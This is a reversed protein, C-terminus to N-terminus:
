SIRVERGKREPQPQAKAVNLRLVGDAFSATIREADTGEPLQFARSFAAASFEQRTYGKREDRQEEQQEGNITLIGNDVSVKLADKKFGPVALELVFEKEVEQINVAPLEMPKFARLAPFRESLWGGPFPLADDDFFRGLATPRKM